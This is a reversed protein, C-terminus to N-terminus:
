LPIDVMIVTGGKEHYEVSANGGLAAAREAISRPIFPLPLTGHPLDNEVCMILHDSRCALRINAWASNTHRRINSLGEAIMQFVEAALRDSIQITTEAEVQVEIGTAETFKRAFRQIALVLGGEYEGGDKLGGVYGRLEAIGFNTLAIVREIDSRVDPVGATLKQRIAALGIQLGIYPQIVSDHLDRAIRQREAEAADSALRDVLRINEIYPMTHDLVQLLFAMDSADFARRRATILYLRGVTDGRQRVPVTVYSETPLAALYGGGTQVTEMVREATGIDYVYIDAESRWWGRLRSTGHSVLAHTAPLTLFLHAVDEALSEARGATDPYQHRARYLRYGHTSQDFIVLLCTDAHYFARLREMISGLTHDVGFRPNSLTSVDKLLALRRKLSNEAGGWYAMMYGLVLLTTPRLLFLNLNFDPEVPATTFGVITFLTASVLTVQLGSNFGWRFSAVLIAFFFFLFFISHTGSSLGIFVVYWGVDIWHATTLLFFPSRHLTLAYLIVSYLIYLALAMYTLAIHRAPESPDIYVVLLASSALTLRMAAIMRDDMSGLALTPPLSAPAADRNRAIGRQWRKAGGAYRHRESLRCLRGLSVTLADFYRGFVAM